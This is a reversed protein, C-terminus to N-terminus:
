VEIEIIEMGRSLAYRMTNFTGGAGGAYAAVLISSSDVMYENRRQMCDTTYNRTVLTQYDCDSLIRYYRRRLHASWRDAQKEFPIAAEITIDERRERLKLVAEGFYMDCGNAMGCIYHRIGSDYVADLVEDMRRKLDLCRLDDESDGWPLKAIRHGTFCCTIEPKFM